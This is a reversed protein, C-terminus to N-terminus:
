SLHHMYPMLSLTWALGKIKVVAGEWVKCCVPVVRPVESIIKFGLRAWHWSSLYHPLWQKILICFQVQRRPPVKSADTRLM